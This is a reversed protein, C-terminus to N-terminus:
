QERLSKPAVYPEGDGTYPALESVIENNMWKEIKGDTSNHDIGDVAEAWYLWDPYSMGIPQTEDINEREMFEDFSEIGTKELWSLDMFGEADTFKTQESEPIGLLDWWEDYNDLNDQTIDYTLTRGEANTKLYMTRLGVSKSTGFTQAFMEGASYPHLYMYQVALCHALVLRTALEPHANAFDSNIYYGCHIGWGTSKDEKVDAGWCTAIIKGFGEEEAISAYPDCCTFIDIQDAKLAMMGDTDSMSGGQYYTAIDLPIGLQDCYETWDLSFSKGEGIDVRGGVVEDLSEVDPHVVMYKSGGTHSGAPMMVPAGKKYINVLGALGAYGVQMDGSAMYDAVKGTKTINVNLGLAKYLGTDQGIIAGVMHDCDNYGMEIVFDKDADPIPDLNELYPAVVEEVNYEVESLEEKGAQSSDNCGALLSLSMAGALAVAIIRNKKMNVMRENLAPVCLGANKFIPSVLGGFVWGLAAPIECM